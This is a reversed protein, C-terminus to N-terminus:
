KLTSEVQQLLTDLPTRIEAPIDFSVPVETQLHYTLSIPVNVAVPVVLDYQFPIVTDIPVAIDQRGLLPIDIYTNIVTNLPYQIDVPITVTQNIPVVTNFPIDQDVQVVTSFPQGSLRDMTGRMSGIVELAADRATLLGVVFVVNLALSLLVLVTLIGLWIKQAM